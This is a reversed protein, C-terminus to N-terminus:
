KELAVEYETTEGQRVSVKETSARYGDFRILVQHVGAPLELDLPSLGQYIDDVVVRARAPTTRIAMHGSSAAVAPTDKIAREDAAPSTPPSVKPPTAQQAFAAPVRERLPSTFDNVIKNSVESVGGALYRMISSRSNGSVGAYRDAKKGATGTWVSRGAADSLSADLLIAMVDRAGIDLSLERVRGSVIFDAPGDNVVKYGATAVSKRLHEAVLAAVDQDLELRDSSIDFVTETIHGIARTPATARADDFDNVRISIPISAPTLAASTKPVSGTACASIFGFALAAVFISAIRSKRFKDICKTQM